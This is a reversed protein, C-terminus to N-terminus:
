SKKDSLEHACHVAEGLTGNWQDSLLRRLIERTAPTTDTGALLKNTLFTEDGQMILVSRAATKAPLPHLVRGGADHSLLILWHFLNLTVDTGGVLEEVLREVQDHDGTTLADKILAKVEQVQPSGGDPSTSM